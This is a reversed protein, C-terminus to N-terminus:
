STSLKPQCDAKSQLHLAPEISISPWAMRITMQLVYGLAWCKTKDWFRNIGSHPIRAFSALYVRSTYIYIYELLNLLHHLILSCWLRSSGRAVTMHIIYLYNGPSGPASTESSFLVRYCLFFKGISHAWPSRGALHGFWKKATFLGEATGHHHDSRNQHWSTAQPTLHLLTTPQSTVHSLTVQAMHGYIDKSDSLGRGAKSSSLITDSSRRM